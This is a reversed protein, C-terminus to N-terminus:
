TACAAARCLARSTSTELGCGLGGSEGHAVVDDDRTRGQDDAVPVGRVLPQDVRERGSIVPTQESVLAPARRVDTVQGVSTSGAVV